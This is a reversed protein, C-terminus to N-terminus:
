HCQCYTGNTPDYPTSVALHLCEEAESVQVDFLVEMLGAVTLDALNVELGVLSTLLDCIYGTVFGPAFDDPM